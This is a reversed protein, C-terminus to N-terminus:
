KAAEFSGAMSWDADAPVIWKRIAANVQDVTLAQLKADQEVSWAWTRGEDLKDAWGHAVAGDDTRATRREALIAQKATDLEAQTIGDKAFRALEEAFDAEVRARNQPAYIAYFQVAGAPEFPSAALSAGAGYSLGDKIRIRANLRSGFEGGGLVHAAAVLAPYDPDTDQLKMPLTGIVVANAKDKMEAVLHLGKADSVPNRWREFPHQSKWDGFLREVEAKVQAADFDGVIAMDAHDAGWYSRYFDAADQLKMGQLEAIQEPISPAYRPDDAPYHHLAASLAHSAVASPEDAAKELQQITQRRGQEFEDAPFAPKRMAEALLALAPQLQERKTVLAAHGYGLGGNLEWDTKLADFADSLQARTKTETGTGIVIGAGVAAARKGRLDDLSGFHLDFVVQVTAGKTKKPLLALKMGNPLTFVQSRKDLGAPSSDFVEGAGIDARPKFDKLQAEPDTRTAYPVRDPADTPIFRGLTRNSAKLWTQAARNVDDLTLADIRDRQLFLLRWDGGAISESLTVCLQQPDAMLQDFAKDSQLQARKLEEATIPESKLSEITDLFIKQAAALDDDKKLMLGVNFQGPDADRSVWAFAQTAKGAEVLRKHLRGNPTDGLANAVVELAAIDPSAMSPVHYTAFLDQEGGVRRLTVEREGDQVPEVTYTPEIVRTPKPTSSWDQAIEALVKAPDFSGAVILTANDPQYYKRYFAQLHPINVNEVDSRAGITDKGYAHWQFAAANTKEMLIRFPNNEGSEMENRVVTMESDLDKKIVNAHTMREAETRLAWALQAPDAPFTEFYNTRDATTSGNFQMGRKSLETSVNAMTKTSRFMLHELLHAMGTEGYGEYRSGVRYTVNVTVTPKSADPILLVQLGNPLRYEHVGEVERVQVPLSGMAKAKAPAAKAVKAPGDAAAAAFPLGSAAVAAAAVLPLVRFSVTNKMM